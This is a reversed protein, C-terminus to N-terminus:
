YRGTGVNSHTYAGSGRYDEYSHTNYSRSEHYRQEYVHTENLSLSLPTAGDPNIIVRHTPPLPRFVRVGGEITVMAGSVDGHIIRTTSTDQASAASALLSLSLASLSLIKLPNM